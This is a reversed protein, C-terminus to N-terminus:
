TRQKQILTRGSVLWSEMGKDLNWVNTYGLDLLSQAAIRSENGSRCYVLIKATRDAPLEFARDSIQDYPIYLDTGQIEGIYPTKVDVLTFDKATLMTALQDASVNTWSGGSGQEVWTGADARSTGFYVVAALAAVGALLALVGIALRTPSIGSSRSARASRSSRPAPRQRTAARSRKM